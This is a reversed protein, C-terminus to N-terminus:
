TLRNITGETKKRSKNQFSLHYLNNWYKTAPHEEQWGVLLTLARFSVGLVSWLWHGSRMREEDVATNSCPLWKDPFGPFTLYNVL